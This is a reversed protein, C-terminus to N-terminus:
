VNLHASLPESGGQSTPLYRKAFRVRLKDKRGRAWTRMMSHTYHTYRKACCKRISAPVPVLFTFVFESIM